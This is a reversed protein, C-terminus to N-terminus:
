AGPLPRDYEPPIAWGRVVAVARVGSGSRTNTLFNRERSGETVNGPNAGQNGGALYISNAATNFGWLFGVHNGSLTEGGTAAAGVVIIDGKRWQRPDQPSIRTGYNAWDRARPVARQTRGGVLIPLGSKYLVWSVFMACWGGAPRPGYPQGWSAGLDRCMQQLNPNSASALWAGGRAEQLIRTLNNLLTVYNNGSAPPFTMPATINGEPGAFQGPAADPNPMDGYNMTIEQGTDPDIYTYNATTQQIMRLQDQTFTLSPLPPVPVSVATQMPQPPQWLAVQVKNVFVNRSYWVDQGSYSPPNLPM